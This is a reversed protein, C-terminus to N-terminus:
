WKELWFLLLPLLKFTIRYSKFIIEIKWNKIRHM